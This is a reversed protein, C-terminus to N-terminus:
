RPLLGRVAGGGPAAMAGIKLLTQQADLVLVACARHVSEPIGADIRHRAERVTMFTSFAGIPPPTTVTEAPLAALIALGCAVGAPDNAATAIAVAREVDARVFGGLDMGPSLPSTACGALLGALVVLMVRRRM